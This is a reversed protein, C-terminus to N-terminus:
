LHDRSWLLFGLLQKLGAGDIINDRLVIPADPPPLLADLAEANFLDYVNRRHPEAARRVARWGDNNIDLTRYFRRRELRAAKGGVWPLRPVRGRVYDAMLWRLRPQLPRTDDSNRDIPLAALEPFRACLLAKQARRNALTAPPMGGAVELVDGSVAPLLPWTAFALRWAASGVHFRARHHLQFCWARQSSLEAYDDFRKRLRAIVAPVIGEFVEPRLLKTLRDVGIGWSNYYGFVSDFSPGSPTPGRRFLLHPGIISDMVHGTVTPSPLERAYPVIGWEVVQSFGNALHEWTVALEVLEPYSAYAIEVKRQNYGLTRAVRTATQTEIDSPIGLTLAEADLNREKLFGGLMRSDLGGSLLLGYRRGGPAHRAVANGMTEGLLNVHANFSLDFYRSSAPIRFQQAERPSAGTRWELRHGAALRRVGSLMTQGDVLGNTLLIGVLGEPNLRMRFAPHYRFLEPSSGVLLVDDSAWYYMPFLGLLDAGALLSTGSQYVVAAYYGDPPPHIHGPPHRWLAMLEKISLRGSAREAIAEGFILGAGMPESVQDLPAGAGVAWIAAFHDLTLASTALGAVPPM